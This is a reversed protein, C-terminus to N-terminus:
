STGEQVSAAREVLRHYFRVNAAFLDSVRARRDVRGRQTMVAGHRAYQLPNQSVLHLRTGFLGGLVEIRDSRSSGTIIVAGHGPLESALYALGPLAMEEWDRETRFTQLNVAIAPCAIDAIWSLYRDLDEKRFWYVNPVVPVGADALESAVLLNRRFNLLHEARPQNGYMSYNPALVLDWAQEALRPILDRRRTWFGEVLPDEGYGALVALQGVRLGLAARATLGRFKPYVGFSTPSLVRRLGIAFAGWGLDADLGPVDHGDVQPIFRPLRAPVASSLAVDDFSLTGGVDAMWVRIDTRSGCRVPCQGCKTGGGARSCGCYSCDPNCGSCIPEPAQLNGIFFPCRRCDCGAAPTLIELSTTV